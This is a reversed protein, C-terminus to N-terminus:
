GALPLMNGAVAGAFVLAGTWKNSVFRTTLSWRDELDATHVQWLMHASAAAVGLYYPWGADAMVGTTADCPVVLECSM